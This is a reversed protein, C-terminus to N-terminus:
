PRRRGFRSERHAHAGQLADCEESAAELRGFLTKWKALAHTRDFRSELLARANTGMQRAREPERATQRLFAALQVADYPEVTTGCESAAIEHALEGDRAGIFIVPRGAALVGYFKSPVVYGEVAPLLSVLQVDPLTISHGLSERPQYPKFVVNSLNRRRTEAQLALHKHGSGIFLFVIAAESRLLEAAEVITEFEHVRGLNGSYGVVFKGALGWEARLPNESAELPRIAKGDAWNAIIALRDEPIGRARLVDATRRGLVVNVAAAKLTRDRLATLMGSLPGSLGRVGVATAVEPFLDQLWNVLMARRWRTAVWVIVSILPPDTKAIAVDGFRLMSLLRLLVSPYFTLYDLIRGTSTKRGFRSTWVRHVVVGAVSEHAPLATKPDDYLLRSTIVHVERGTDRLAFVLDSLMQSTASHDPYFYRNVFVLRM